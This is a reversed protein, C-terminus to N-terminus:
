LGSSSLTPTTGNMNNSPGLGQFKAKAM